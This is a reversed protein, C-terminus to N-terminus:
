VLVGGGAEWAANFAGPSTWVGVMLAFAQYEGDGFLLNANPGMLGTSKTYIGMANVRQYVLM